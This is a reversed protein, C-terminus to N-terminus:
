IFPCCQSTIVIYSHYMCYVQHLFRVFVPTIIEDFVMSSHEGFNIPNDGTDTFCFHSQLSWLALLHVEPGKSGRFCNENQQHQPSGVTYVTIWRKMLCLYRNFSQHVWQTTIMQGNLSPSPRGILLSGCLSTHDKLNKLFAKIEPVM